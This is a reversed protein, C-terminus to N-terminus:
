PYVYYARHTRTIPSPSRSMDHSQTAGGRGFTLSNPRSVSSYARLTSGLMARADTRTVTKSGPWGAMLEAGSESTHQAGLTHGFEHAIIGNAAITGKSGFALAIRDFSEGSNRYGYGFVNFPVLSKEKSIMDISGASSVGVLNDAAGEKGAAEADKESSSVSVSISTKFTYTVGNEVFSGSFAQAIQAQLIAQAERLDNASVGEDSPYIVFSAKIEVTATNATVGPTITVEAKQGTPDVFLLPNCNAYQYRNWTQPAAAEGSGLLSDCATFRGYAGGFYRAQAFQLGTETEGEYSTFSQRLPGDGSYEVSSRGFAATEPVRAGYPLYDNRTEVTGISGSGHTVVRPTGLHDPTSYSTLESAGPDRVVALLGSPGYSYEVTRANGTLEAVLEGRSGYVFRTETTGGSDVIRKVRRGLGDYVYKVVTGGTLNSKFMRSNADYDHTQQLGTEMNVDVTLNGAEDYDTPIDDIETIRNRAGDVVLEHHLQFTTAAGLKMNGWQDYMFEQVWTATDTALKSGRLLRNRSSRDRDDVGAREDGDPRATPRRKRPAKDVWNTTVGARWTALGWNYVNATYGNASSDAATTDSFSLANMKWLGKTNADSTHNKENNHNFPANYRVINSIRVEDIKGRLYKSGTGDSKLLRGIQLATNSAAAGKNLGVTQSTIAGNVAVGIIGGSSNKYSGVVHYWQKIQLTQTSTISAAVAGAATYTVFSLKNTNTVFLQYGGEATSTKHKSVVVDTVNTDYLVIWAEVTINGTVNLGTIAGASDPSAYQNIGDNKIALDSPLLVVTAALEVYESDCGGPGRAKIRYNYEQLPVLGNTDQYSTLNPLTVAIEHYPQTNTVDRREIVFGTENSSHDAWALNIQIGGVPTATLNSPPTPGGSCLVIVELPPDSWASAFPSAIARVRYYYTGSPVDEDVFASANAPTEGVIAGDLDDADNSRMVQYACEGTVEDWDLSVTSGTQPVALHLNAPTAPASTGTCGSGSSTREWEKALTLRNLQDYGYNQEFYPQGPVPKVDIRAINGNNQAPDISGGYGLSSDLQRGYTYHLSLRDETTSSTGLLIETPQLRSNYNIRHHLSTSTNPDGYRETALAGAASYTIAGAMITSGRKVVSTQGADNYEFYRTQNSSGPFLYSESTMLNQENYTPTSEYHSTDLMQSYHTARGSPDYAYFVGTLEQNTESAAHTFVAFMRGKVNSRDFSPLDTVDSPLVSNDYVYTVDPNSNITNAYNVTLPRNLGDYTTTVTFASGRPDTRSVVNGAQDYVYTTTGAIGPTVPDECEPMKTSTMRGLSDYSFEREIQSGQTVKKLNGRADYTYTTTFNLGQVNPAENVKIMRGIGDTVSSRENLAQDIVITVPRGSDAAVAYKTDVRGTFGSEPDIDTFSEVFRVRSLADYTTKTWGRTEAFPDNARVPNSVYEVRGRIDYRTEVTVPNSLGFVDSRDAYQLRGLGDFRQRSWTERTTGGNVDLKSYITLSQTDTSPLSYELRNRGGNPLNEETLRSLPDAYTYTAVESNEGTASIMQGTDFSYTRSSDLPVVQEMGGGLQENVYRHVATPYSHAYDESFDFKVSYLDSTGTTARPGFTQLVNGCEDYRNRVISHTVDSLGSDVTTVNGRRADRIANISGDHRLTTDPNAAITRQVLGVHFSDGSYEDYFYKTEAEVVPTSQGDQVKETKVLSRLHVVQVWNMTATAPSTYNTDTEYTRVTERLIAGPSGAGWDTETTKTVNNFPYTAGADYEYAVKSALPSGSDYVTTKVSKVRPHFEPSTLANQSDRQEWETDVRRLVEEAGETLYETAEERGEKWPKQGSFAPAGYARGYNDLPTGVFVHRTAANISTGGDGDDALFKEIVDSHYTTTGPNLVHTESYRTKTAFTATTDDLFTARTKVRRYIQLGAATASVGYQNTDFGGEHTWEMRGGFPQKMWSLEGYMNYKFEYKYSEGTTIEPLEVRTLVLPDFDQNPDHAFASPNGFLDGLHVVGTGDSRVTHLYDAFLRVNRIDGNVDTFTITAVEFEGTVVDPIWNNMVITRGLTDTITWRIWNKNYEHKYNVRNGNTDEQWIVLNKVIEFRTGDRLFVHGSIELTPQEGGPFPNDYIDASSIFTAATGDTSYWVQKRNFGRGMGDCSGPKFLGNTELDRFMYETGDPAIFTITSFTGDFVTTSSGNCTLTKTGTGSRRAEIRGPNITWGRAIEPRTTDWPDYIAFYSAEGGVPINETRWIKSNYALLMSAGLGNRGDKAALPLRVSLNGNFLNVVDIDGGGYSGLPHAGKALASPTGQDTASSTQARASPCAALVAFVMAASICMVRRIFRESAM